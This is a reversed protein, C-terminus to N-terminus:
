AATTRVDRVFRMKEAVIPWGADRGVHGFPQTGLAHIIHAPCREVWLRMALNLAPMLCQFVPHQQFVLVQGSIELVLDRIKDLMVVMLAIM